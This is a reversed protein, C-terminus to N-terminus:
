QSVGPLSDVGKAWSSTQGKRQREVSDWELFMPDADILADHLSVDDSAGRSRPAKISQVENSELQALFEDAVSLAPADAFMLITLVDAFTIRSLM